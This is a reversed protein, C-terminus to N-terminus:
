PSCFLPACNKAQFRIRGEPLFVFIPLCFFCKVSSFASVKKKGGLVVPAVWHRRGSGLPSHALRSSCFEARVPHACLSARIYRCRVWRFEPSQHDLYIHGPKMIRADRRRDDSAWELGSSHQLTSTRWRAFHGDSAAVQRVKKRAFIYRCKQAM